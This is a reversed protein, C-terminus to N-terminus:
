TSSQLSRAYAGALLHRDVANFCANTRAGQFWRFYPAERWPSVSTWKEALSSGPRDCSVVRCM